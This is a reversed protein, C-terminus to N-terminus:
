SLVGGLSDTVAAEVHLYAAGASGAAAGLDTLSTALALRTRTWNGLLDDLAAAVSADGMDSWAAGVEGLSSLVEALHTLDAGLTAIAAGDVRLTTM